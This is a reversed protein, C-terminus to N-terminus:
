FVLLETQNLHLRFFLLVSSLPSSPSIMAVSLHIAHVEKHFFFFHFLLREVVGHEDDARQANHQSMANLFGM